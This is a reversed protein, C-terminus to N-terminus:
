IVEQVSIHAPANIRYNFSDAIVLYEQILGARTEVMYSPHEYLRYFGILVFGLYLALLAGVHMPLDFKLNERHRAVLWAALVNLLLLNFFNLGGIGFMTRPVDPMELIGILLILGCLGKFWDRWTYMAVATVILWLFTLRIM